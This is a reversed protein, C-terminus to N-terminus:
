GGSKGGLHVSNRQGAARPNWCGSEPLPGSGCSRHGDGGSVSLTYHHPGHRKRLRHSAQLSLRPCCAALHTESQGPSQGSCLWSGQRCRPEDAALRSLRSCSTTAAWHIAVPEPAARVGPSLSCSLARTISASARAFALGHREAGHTSRRLGSTLRRRITRKFVTSDYCCASSLPFQLVRRALLRLYM